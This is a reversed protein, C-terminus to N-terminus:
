PLKRALTVGDGVALMCESVRDDDRVKRAIARLAETSEDTHKPDAVNGNWLVNDIAILGNARVLKLSREYYDDYGTKDADIFAFDFSGSEGADILADLTEVAPALRLDIKDAVGAESWFPKGISTWEESVDCCILKGDPPLALAVAMASYGTFTGIELAKRAGILQILFAFFQGQDPSIQMGPYPLKATAKRLRKFVDAEKVSVDLLYDYLKNTMKVTRNPM